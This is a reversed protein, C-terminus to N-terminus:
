LGSPLDWHFLTVWPTIGNELLKNIVSNYFEIGKENINNITGDPLIRPWSLSMRFNRIGLSKM